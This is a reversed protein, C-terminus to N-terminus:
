QGPWDACLWQSCRASNETGVSAVAHGGADRKGCHGTTRGELSATRPPGRECVVSREASAAPNAKNAKTPTRRAWTEPHSQGTGTRGGLQPTKWKEAREGAGAGAMSECSLRRLEHPSWSRPAPWRQPAAGPTQPAQAGRHLRPTRPRRDQKRLITGAPLTVLRASAEETQRAYPPKIPPSRCSPWLRAGWSAGTEEKM